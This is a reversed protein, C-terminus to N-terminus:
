GKTKVFLELYLIVAAAISGAMALFDLSAAVPGVNRNFAPSPRPASPPPAIPARSAAPAPTAGVAPPPPIAGPAPPPP